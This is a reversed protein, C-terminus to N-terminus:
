KKLKKLNRHNKKFIKQYATKLYFWNLNCVYITSKFSSSKKAFIEVIKKEFCKEDTCGAKM